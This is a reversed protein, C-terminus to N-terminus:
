WSIVPWYRRPTIACFHLGVKVGAPAVPHDSRCTSVSRARHYEFASNSCCNTPSGSKVGLPNEAAMRRILDRLELTIPPRGPRSIYRWFLRWGVRHWRIVTESRVITLCSRWDCCRSLLALSMRTAADIRRPMIGREKYLTIQRRLVLNEAEISRRPRLALLVLASLDALLRVVIQVFAIM